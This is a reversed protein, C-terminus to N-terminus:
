QRLPNLEEQVLVVLAVVVRVREEGLQLLEDEVLLALRFPFLRSPSDM